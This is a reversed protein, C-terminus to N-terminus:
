PQLPNNEIENQIGRLQAEAQHLEKLKDIFAQTGPVLHSLENRLQRVNKQMERPTQDGQTGNINVNVNNNRNNM